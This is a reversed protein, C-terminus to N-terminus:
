VIELTWAQFKQKDQETVLVIRCHEVLPIAEQSSLLRRTVVTGQLHFPFPLRLLHGLFSRVQSAMLIERIRFNSRHIGKM